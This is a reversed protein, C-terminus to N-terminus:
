IRFTLNSGTISIHKERKETMTINDTAFYKYSKQDATIMFEDPIKCLLVKESIGHLFQSKVEIQVNCLPGGHLNQEKICFDLGPTLYTLTLM